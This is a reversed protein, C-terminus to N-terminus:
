FRTISCSTSSSTDNKKIHFIHWEDIHLFISSCFDNLKMAGMIKDQFDLHNELIEDMENSLKERHSRYGNM